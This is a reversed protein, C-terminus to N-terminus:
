KRKRSVTRQQRQLYRMYRKYSAPNAITQGFSTIALDKIGLDVGVIDYEGDTIEIHEHVPVVDAVYAFSVYWRDAIRSVTAMALPVKDVGCPITIYDKEKLKVRGLKPLQVFDRGIFVGGSMRFSDHDGYKRFQPHKGLGRFCKKWATGLDRM